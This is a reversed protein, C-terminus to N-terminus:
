SEVDLLPLLPRLLEQPRVDLVLDDQVHVLAPQVLSIISPLRPALDALSVRLGLLLQRGSDGERDGM